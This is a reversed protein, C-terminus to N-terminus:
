RSSLNVLILILLAFVGVFFLSGYILKYLRPRDDFRVTGGRTPIPAKEKFNRALVSFYGFAWATWGSLALYKPHSVVAFFVAFFVFGCIFLGLTISSKM